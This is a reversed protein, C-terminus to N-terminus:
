RVCQLDRELAQAVPTDMARVGESGWCTRQQISLANSDIAVLQRAKHRLRDFELELMDILRHRCHVIAILPQGFVCPHHLEPGVLDVHKAFLLPCDAKPTRPRSQRVM